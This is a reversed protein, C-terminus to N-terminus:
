QREREAVLDRADDLLRARFRVDLCSFGERHERPDAAPLARGAPRLFLIQARRGAMEADLDVATKGRVHQHRMRAIQDVM